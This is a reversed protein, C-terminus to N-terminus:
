WIKHLLLGAQLNDNAVVVDILREFRQLLLHLSFADKALHLEPAMVFFRGFLACALPGFRDAAIALELALTQLTLAEQRASCSGLLSLESAAAGPPRKM